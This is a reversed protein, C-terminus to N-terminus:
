RVRIQTYLCLIKHMYICSKRRYRRADIFIAENKIYIRDIYYVRIYGYAAQIYRTEAFTKRAGAACLTARSKVSHHQKSVKREKKWHTKWRASLRQIYIYVCKVIRTHM